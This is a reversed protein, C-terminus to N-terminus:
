RAPQYRSSKQSYSPGMRKRLGTACGGLPQSDSMLAVGRGDEVAHHWALLPPQPGAATWGIVALTDGDAVIDQGIQDLPGGPILSSYVIDGATPDVVTVVVDM